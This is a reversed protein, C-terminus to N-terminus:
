PLKSDNSTTTVVQATDARSLWMILNDPVSTARDGCEVKGQSCYCLPSCYFIERPLHLPFFFDDIPMTSIGESLTCGGLGPFFIEKLLEEGVM